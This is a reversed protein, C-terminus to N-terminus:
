DSSSFLTVYYFAKAVCRFLNVPVVREIRANGVISKVRTDSDHWLLSAVDGGEVDCVVSGSGGGGSVAQPADDSYDLRPRARAGALTTLPRTDKGGGTQQEAAKLSVPASSPRAAAGDTGLQAAATAGPQMSRIGRPAAVPAPPVYIDTDIEPDPHLPDALSDSDGSDDPEDNIQLEACAVHAVPM